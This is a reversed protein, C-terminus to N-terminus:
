NDNKNIEVARFRYVYIKNSWYAPSLGAKIKLHQMFEKKNPLEKWVSPLFLGQRNGDVIVIGDKGEEIKSLLDDESLFRVRELNTLLSIYYDLGNIEDNTLKEFRKDQMAAGYAANAVDLAVAEKPIVTGICGRLESNKLLTVFSAGKDFLNDSYDNRSPKFRKNRVAEELSIQVIERLENKYLGAFEELSKLEREIGVLENKTNETFSWSGYGVVQSKDGTVDGSNRLDLTEPYLNNEKSLILAANIGISGCSLEEHIDADNNLIQGATHEDLEKARNYSYYHSLDASIIILTDKRELMPRLAEALQESDIDGYAIPVISFSKLVRQLFPLQVEISHERKHATDLIKILENKEVLQKLLNKDINISGLPTRFSGYSPVAAGYLHEYHSPGVIIVKKIKDAYSRLLSYAKAAVSGSYQYGAHPVILIKPQESSKKEGDKLYHEVDKDLRERDSSYFLGAVAPDRSMNDEEPKEFDTIDANNTDLMKSMSFYNLVVLFILFIGIIVAYVMKKRDIETETKKSKIRPSRTM